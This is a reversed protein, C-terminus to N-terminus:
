LGAAQEGARIVAEKMSRYLWEPAVVEEIDKVKKARIFIYQGLDLERDPIVTIQELIRDVDFSNGAYEEHVNSSFMMETEFGCLALLQALEHKTYERNHRGYKGHGSYPDYINVGAMLRAVNELRALNPTSMVLYGNVKLMKNINLLARVPSETMHEIVECFCVVDLGQRYWNKEINLNIYDVPISEKGDTKVLVQRSRYFSTDTDSFCNSCEIQYGTYKLMLLTMFYPNAGIELVEYPRDIDPLVSFTYCFRFFADELYGQLERRSDADADELTYGSLLERFKEVTLGHQLQLPWGLLRNLLREKQGIQEFFALYKETVVDWSFHRIVYERGQEGMRDAEKPHQEMYRLTEEFQAYGSFWLGGNSLKAFNKTVECAANVLVPRRCLWSEMLVLSFSECSSPQCLLMAAAYADYKDQEPIYGPDLIDRRMGAPLKQDGGGILVLRLPGPNRKKYRVFYKLLLDTNKGHDKRGAYLVFPGPIKYKKRFRDADCTIETRIGEGPVVTKVKELDFVRHALEAEPQAHFIMGAVNRFVEQFVDMYIYSEDHFCPILVSKHPCIQIGYYTTGFMYPIFVFLGYEEQHKEIYEYLGPSNIMEKVYIEEEQPSLPIRGKMLKRNVADFQRTNRKRVAFRRIRIGNEEYSGEKHYNESWDSAFEKVCTTLIELEMGADQLHIALERVEAEAGGPIDMGFWPTVIGTKEM